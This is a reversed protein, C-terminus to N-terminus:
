EKVSKYITNDSYFSNISSQNPYIISNTSLTSLNNTFSNLSQQRSSHAPAAENAAVAAAAAAAAAAILSSSNSYPNSHNINQHLDLFNAAAAAISSNDFNLLGTQPSMQISASHQQLPALHASSHLSPQLMRGYFAFAAALSGIGNNGDNIFTTRSEETETKYRGNNMIMSNLRSPNSNNAQITSGNTANFAPSSSYSSVSASNTSLNAIPPYKICAAYPMFSNLKALYSGSNNSQGNISGIAL